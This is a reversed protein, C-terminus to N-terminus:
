AQCSHPDDRFAMALMGRRSFSTLVAAAIGFFSKGILWPRGRSDLGTTVTDSVRQFFARIIHANNEALDQLARCGDSGFLPSSLFGPLTTTLVAFCSALRPATSQACVLAVTAIDNEPIGIALFAPVPTSSFHFQPPEYDRGEGASVRTKSAHSSDYRTCASHMPTNVDPSSVTFM